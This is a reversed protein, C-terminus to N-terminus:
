RWPVIPGANGALSGVRVLVENQAIQSEAILFLDPKQVDVRERM